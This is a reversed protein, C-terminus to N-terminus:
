FPLDGDENCTLDEKENCEKCEDGEDIFSGYPMGGATYGAIFSMGYLGMLYEEYEEETWAEDKKVKNKKSKRNRGM